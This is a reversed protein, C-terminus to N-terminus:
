LVLNSKEPHPIDVHDVTPPIHLPTHHHAEFTRLISELRIM